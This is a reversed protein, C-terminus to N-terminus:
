YMTTQEKTKKEQPWQITQGKEQPWQITQGKEQPWQITQGEILSNQNGRQYM